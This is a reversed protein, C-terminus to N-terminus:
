VSTALPSKLSVHYENQNSDEEQEYLQCTDPRVCLKMLRQLLNVVTIFERHSDKERECLRTLQQRQAARQEAM